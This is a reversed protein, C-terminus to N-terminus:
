MNLLRRNLKPVNNQFAKTPRSRLSPSAHLLMQVQLFEHKVSGSFPVPTLSALSEQSHLPSRSCTQDTESKVM